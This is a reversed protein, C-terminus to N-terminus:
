SWRENHLIRWIQTSSVDYRKALDRQSYNGIKHLDRIENAMIMNKIKQGRRHRTNEKATVFNCNEPCYNGENNKRNIELNDAYGNSLAWNRFAIYDNTWEPCITIGREGYAYYNCNKPNSCRQKINDWIRYLRTGYGEGHKYYM